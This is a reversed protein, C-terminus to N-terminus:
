AGCSAEMEAASAATSTSSTGEMGELVRLCVRSTMDHRFGGPRGVTVRLVLRVGSGWSRDAARQCEARQELRVHGARWGRSRAPTEPM